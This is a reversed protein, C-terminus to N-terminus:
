RRAGEFLPTTLAAYRPSRIAQCYDLIALADSVNDDAPKWGLHRCRDFVARKAIASKLRRSGIFHGRVDSVDAEFAQIHWRYALAEAIAPLGFLIRAVSKTTKGAMVSPAMPAEFCVVDPKTENYHAVLWSLFRGFVAGPADGPQALLVSGYTPTEGARGQAWGLRTALDLALILESMLRRACLDLTAQKSAQETTQNKRQVKSVFSFPPLKGGGEL